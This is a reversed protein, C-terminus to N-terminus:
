RVGGRKRKREDWWLAVDARLLRLRLSASSRLHGGELGLVRATFEAEPSTTYMLRERPAQLVYASRYLTEADGRADESPTFGSLRLYSTRVLKNSMMLDLETRSPDLSGRVSFPQHFAVQHVAIIQPEGSESLHAIPCAVIDCNSASLRKWMRRLATIRYVVGAEPMLICDASTSELARAMFAARDEADIVHLNPVRESHEPLMRASGSNVFVDFLPFRQAYISHVTARLAEPDRGDDWVIVSVIPRQAAEVKSTPLESLCLDPYRRVLRQWAGFSILDRLFAVRASILEAVGEEAHWFNAYRAGMLREAEKAYLRDFYEVRLRELRPRDSDDAAALEQEWRQTAATRIDAHTSLHDHESRLSIVQTASLEGFL